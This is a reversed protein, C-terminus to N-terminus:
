LYKKIKEHEVNLKHKGNDLNKIDYFWVKQNDKIEYRTGTIQFTTGKVEFKTM